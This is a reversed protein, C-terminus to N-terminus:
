PRLWEQVQGYDAQLGAKEIAMVAAQEDTDSNDGSVGVAGAVVGDRRILVGGPVPVVKGGSMASLASIFLPAQVGKEALIRSALGMGLAGWAKGIAIDNRLFESGDDRLLVRPHGGADLVAVTLAGTQKSRGWRLVGDAITHAEELSIPQTTKTGM